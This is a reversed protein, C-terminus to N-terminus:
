EETDQIEYITLNRQLLRKFEKVFRATSKKKAELESDAKVICDGICIDHYDYAKFRKRMYVVQIREGL